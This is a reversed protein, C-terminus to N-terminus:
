LPRYVNLGIKEQRSFVLQNGGSSSIIINKGSKSPGVEQTLNVSITLIDDTVKMMLNKFSDKAGRKIQKPEIERYITMGIREDRGPITKNGETTAVINNRGSKSPGFDKTLDVTITLIDQDVSFDVNKMRPVSVKAPKETRPKRQKEAPAAPEIGPASNEPGSPKGVPWLIEAFTDGMLLSISKKDLRAVRILDENSVLHPSRAERDIKKRAREVFDNPREAVNKASWRLYSRARTYDHFALEFHRIVEMIPLIVNTNIFGSETETILNTFRLPTKDGLPRYFNNFDESSILFEFGESTKVMYPSSTSEVLEVILGPDSGLFQEFLQSM